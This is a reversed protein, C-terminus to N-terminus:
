QLQLIHEIIAERKQDLNGDASLQDLFRRAAAKASGDKAGRVKLALTTVYRIDDIGERYGEIALTDIVGDVTPYVLCPDRYGHNDFDNWINGFSHMYAYTCAGDYNALWLALGFNRRFVAPNEPGSQPNAYSWIRHGVSHWLDAEETSLAGACVLVDQIDGLKPFNSGRYGAVFMKVGLKRTAIWAQRQAALRDGKAEDIGYLYLQPIKRKRTWALLEAIKALQEPDDGPRLNLLLLPKNRIGAQERLGTYQNFQVPLKWPQYCTPNTIGHDVMDQLEARIQEVSRAESSITGQPTDGVLISRYYISSIFPEDLNHRVRPEVLTFPLVRLNLNLTALKKGNSKVVVTGVCDGSAPPAKITLWYQRNT